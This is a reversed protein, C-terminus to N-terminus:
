SLSSIAQLVAEWLTDGLRPASPVLKGSFHARGWVGEEPVPRATAAPQM